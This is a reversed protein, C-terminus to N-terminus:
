ACSQFETDAPHNKACQYMKVQMDDLVDYIDSDFEHTTGTNHDPEDLHINGVIKQTKPDLIVEVSEGPCNHPRCISGYLMTEGNVTIPRMPSEVGNLTRLWSFDPAFVVNFEPNTRERWKAYAIPYLTKIQWPSVPKESSGVPAELQGSGADQFMAGIVSEPNYLERQILEGANYLKIVQCPRACTYSVDPMDVPQIKDEGNVVGLYRITLLKQAAVGESKQQDTVDPAYSYDSGERADYRHTPQPLPPPPPPPPPEVSSSVTASVKTEKSTQHPACSMLAVTVIVASVAARYLSAEM